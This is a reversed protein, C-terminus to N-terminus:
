RLASGSGSGPAPKLDLAPPDAPHQWRPGAYDEEFHETAHAEQALDFVLVTAPGSYVLRPVALRRLTQQGAHEERFQRMEWDEAVLYPHAGHATLWTVARDLWGEELWDFRLTVRGSYYRLSGSHQISFLVANPPTRESLLRAVTVYRREEKWLRFANRQFAILCGHAALAALLVAGARPGLRLAGRALGVMLPPWAVLFFRLYWWQDFVLYACYHVTLYLGGLALAIRDRRSSSPWLGPSALAVLGLLVLPTQTVLLWSAYNRLNPGFHEWAFSGSGSVPGYGTLWPSGYFAQNVALLALGGPAVGVCYALLCRRRRAVLWALVAALPALNPRLLFNAGVLCGAMAAEGPSNGLALVLAATWLAAAPVDSMPWMLMFLFTPSCAVLLSGGVGAAPSGLRVGLLYTLFVLGAGCAPVVAFLAPPGGVAKAAAMLMPLGSFYIPALASDDETPRYGLPAFTGMPRPWPAHRAWPQPLLVQGRLWGEAQSVYGYSDSGSATMTCWNVGVLFTALALLWAARLGRLM